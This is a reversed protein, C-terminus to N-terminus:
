TQTLLRNLKALLTEMDDLSESVLDADMYNEYFNEHPASASDFLRRIERDGTESRLHTATIIHHRHRNNEWGHQEAIAKLMQITASWGKKSAQWLDGAAFTARAQEMFQESAQRRQETTM